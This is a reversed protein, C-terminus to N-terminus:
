NNTEYQVENFSEYSRGMQFGMLFLTIVLLIIVIENKM